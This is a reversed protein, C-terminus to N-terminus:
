GGLTFEAQKAAVFYRHIPYEVAVGMGGHIHVATHAVRHGGEAAWLKAVEIEMNAPLGTSLRWAAQWLTLRIGEVDIYADACRHGVAQFTSIPREFQVREGAYAATRRLAEETIGLQMACLGLTARALIWDVIDAGDGELRRDAAVVVGDLEVFGETDGNTTRQPTVTVGPTDVDVVFVSTGDPGRAPVLMTSAVGVAADASATTVPIGGPPNLPEVLAATVVTSGDAAPRAWRDRQAPSGFRAIPGAGLVSSALVPVPALTRGVQELVLCEEVIGFGGGGASEPLGIGLLGATGLADWVGRDFRGAADSEITRLLDDTVKDELIRKALDSVAQQEETFSFDM